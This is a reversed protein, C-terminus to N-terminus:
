CDVEIPYTCKFIQADYSSAVGKFELFQKAYNREDIAQSLSEYRTRGDCKLTAAEPGFDRFTALEELEKGEVYHNRLRDFIRIIYYYSPKRM